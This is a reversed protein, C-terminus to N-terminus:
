LQKGQRLRVFEAAEDEEIGWLAAIVGAYDTDEVGMGALEGISAVIEERVPAVSKDRRAMLAVDFGESAFRRAVAAGLGPGVGLVAAVKGNMRREKDTREM